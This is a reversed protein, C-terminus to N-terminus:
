PTTVEEGKRSKITFDTLIKLLFRSDIDIYQFMSNQLLSYPLFRALADVNKKKVEGLLGLYTAAIHTNCACLEYLVYVM